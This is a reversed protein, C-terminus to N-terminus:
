NKAEYKWLELQNWADKAKQIGSDYAKKMWYAAQKKDTSSGRGYYYMLALNCQGEPNGQEAAKKFWYFAKNLDKKTGEGHEYMIALNYQAQSDSQRASKKYWYFAKSLDKLTGKGYYYMWALQYQAYEYGQEASKKYWYFAKTPDTLGGEGWYYMGGLNFQARADGQEASKKYWYFAQKFDKSNGEGYGFEYMVGLNCQAPAYGQEASKKYWYFAKTPDTLVVKGNDYMVGIKYQAPAYGQEASKKYWGFAQILSKLVGKGNEYMFGLNFQAPAFGQEAALLFTQLFNDQVIATHAQLRNVNKNLILLEDGNLEIKGLEKIASQGLLLPAHPNHVIIAKVNYLKIGGIDLERLSITTNKIINGDALQSYSSGIIDSSTLYGDKHMLLAETLSLSVFSSGTDFIFYLKLGNVTCPIGYVGGIKFMKIKVQAKLKPSMCIAYSFFIILFFKKM